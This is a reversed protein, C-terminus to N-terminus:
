LYNFYLSVCAGAIILVSIGVFEKKPRRRARRDFPNPPEFVLNVFAKWPGLDPRAKLKAELANRVESVTLQKGM